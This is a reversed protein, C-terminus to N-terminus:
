GGCHQCMFGMVGFSRWLLQAWAAHRSKIWGEQNAEEAGPKVKLLFFLLSM